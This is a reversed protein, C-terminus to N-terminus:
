KDQKFNDAAPGDKLVNQHCDKQLGGSSCFMKNPGEMYIGLILHVSSMSMLEVIMTMRHM